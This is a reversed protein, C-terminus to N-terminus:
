KSYREAIMAAFNGINVCRKRIEEPSHAIFGEILKEHNDQLGDILDEVPIETWVEKSERNVLLALRMAATFSLILNNEQTADSHAM